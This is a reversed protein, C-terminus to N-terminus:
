EGEDLQRSFNPDYELGITARGITALLADDNEHRVYTQLDRFIRELPHPKLLASAGCANIAHGVAALAHHEALHRCSNSAVEAESIRGRQWLGATHQLWLTIGEVALRMEAVHHLVYPDKQKARNRIYPLAFEMAAEAAGLFSAAFAPIFKAQWREKFYAGPGGLVDDHAVFVNDLRVMHSVTARMGLPQWWQPEITVGPDNGRIIPMILSDLINGRGPIVAFLIAYTAGGASTSFQKRGNILYGGEIPQATTWGLIQRPDEPRPPESGWFVFTEGEKVVRPLYRERQKETGSNALVTVGNVHGEYCRGLSLDGKALNKIVLWLGLIDGSNFGLGLGGYRKPVTAALLGQERLDDFDARPFAIAEDYQPARPAFRTRALEETLEALRRQEPTLALDM